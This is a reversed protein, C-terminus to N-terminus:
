TSTPGGYMSIELLDRRAVGLVMGPTLGSGAPPPAGSGLVIALVESEVTAELGTSAAASTAASAEWNASPADMDPPMVRAEAPDSSAIGPVGPELAMGLVGWGIRVGLPVRRASGSDQKQTM